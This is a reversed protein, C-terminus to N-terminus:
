SRGRDMELVPCALGDRRRCSYEYAAGRAAIIEDPPVLIGDPLRMPNFSLRECGEWQDEILDTLELSGMVVRRRWLPWGQTPDDLPDGDEGIMARLEFRIPATALRERLDVRLADKGMSRQEDPTAPHVGAVPTWTFKCWRVIGNPARLGFAHVAHYTARAWSTPAYIGAAGIVGARAFRHRDAYETLGPGSSVSPGSKLSPPRRLRVIAGLFALVRRWWPQRAVPRPIAAETFALFQDPTKTFFVSLTMAILDTERGDALHFKVAMGHVDRKADDEEASGSGNSFRVTVDVPGNFHEAVSMGAAEPSPVFRGTAGMGSTHIPRRKPDTAHDPYDALIADVLRRALETM